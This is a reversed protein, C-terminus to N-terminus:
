RTRSVGRPRTEQTASRPNGTSGIEGRAHANGSRRSCTASAKEVKGRGGRRGPDVGPQRPDVAVLRSGDGKPKLEGRGHTITMDLDMRETAFGYSGRSIKM